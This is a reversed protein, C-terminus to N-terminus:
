GGRISFIEGQLKEERKELFGCCGGGKRLPSIMGRLKGEAKGRDKKAPSSGDRRKECVPVKKHREWVRSRLTPGAVGIFNTKTRRKGKGNSYGYGRKAWGREKHAL